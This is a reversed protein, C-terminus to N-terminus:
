FTSVTLKSIYYWAISNSFPIYHVMRNGVHCFAVIWGEKTVYNGLIRKEQIFAPLHMTPKFDKPTNRLFDSTQKM